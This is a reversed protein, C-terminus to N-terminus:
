DLNDGHYIPHHLLFKHNTSILSYRVPFLSAIRNARYVTGINTEGVKYQLDWLIDGNPNIELTHGFDGVTTVLYNDNALKQVNGSLEGFLNEPLTYSWIVEGANSSEDVSIELARTQAGTYNQEILFYPLYASINGNDLTLINGNELIQLGHQFTFGNYWGSIPDILDIMVNGNGYWDHGMSWLIEGSPYDIKYIRSLSRSSLYIASLENNELEFELANFHTWDYYGFMSYANWNLLPDYDFQSIHDFANWSWIIEGLNDWLVIKEGRFIAYPDNFNDEWSLPNTCGPTIDCFPTPTWQENPLFGLYGNPTKLLEHQIFNEINSGNAGQIVQNPEEFNISLDINFDIGPQRDNYFKGGYLNGYKNSNYYIYSNMGGSHWVQNGDCDIAASFAPSLNGFITLGEPCYDQYKTINLDGLDIKPELSFTSLSCNNEDDADCVTIQFSNEYAKYPLNSLHNLKNTTAILEQNGESIDDITLLYTSVGPMQEWEVLIQSHNLISGDTPMIIAANVCTSLIIYIISARM